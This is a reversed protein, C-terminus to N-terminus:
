LEYDAIWHEAILPDVIARTALHASHRHYVALAERSEFDCVLVFDVARRGENSRAHSKSACSAPYAALKVKSRQVSPRSIAM